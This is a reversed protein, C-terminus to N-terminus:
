AQSKKCSPLSRLEDDPEVKTENRDGARVTLMDDFPSEFDKYKEGFWPSVGFDKKIEL